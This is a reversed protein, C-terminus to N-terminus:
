LSSPWSSLWSCSVREKRCITLCKSRPNPCLCPHRAFCPCSCSESVRRERCCSRESAPFSPQSYPVKPELNWRSGCGVLQKRRRQQCRCSAGLLSRPTAGMNRRSPDKTLFAEGTQTINLVGCGPPDPVRMWIKNPTPPAKQVCAASCFFWGFFSISLVHDHCCQFSQLCVGSSGRTGVVGKM